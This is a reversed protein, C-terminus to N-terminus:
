LPLYADVLYIFCPFFVCLVGFGIFGGAVTPAAWHVAPTFGTWGFRLSFFLDTAPGRGIIRSDSVLLNWNCLNPSGALGSPSAM